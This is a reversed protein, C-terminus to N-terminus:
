RDGRGDDTRVTITYSSRTEYDFAVATQLESGAISFAANDPTLACSIAPVM